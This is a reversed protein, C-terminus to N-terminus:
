ASGFGRSNKMAFIIADKFDKYEKHIVPLYLICACTNSKPFKSLEGNEEPDHLFTLECSLGLPPLQRCATTFFLIDSFTFPTPDEEIDLLLDQWHSLVLNEVLRRNSGKAERRINEFLAEFSSATSLKPSYCFADLFTSPHKRMAELVGLARLGDSFSSYAPQVRGLVYWNITKQVVDKIDDANNMVQLTGAMDLVVDLKDENIIKCAESVDSAKSLRDFSSRLEYDPVDNLDANLNQSGTGKILAHYCSEALCNISPGGHVLSMAFVQGALYYEKEDLSNANLSLFKSNESGFFLHSNLM